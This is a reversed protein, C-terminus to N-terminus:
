DHGPLNKLVDRAAFKERDLNTVTERYLGECIRLVGACLVRRRLVARLVGGVNNTAHIDRRRDERAVATCGFRM